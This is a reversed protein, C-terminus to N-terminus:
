KFDIQSAIDVIRNEGLDTALQELANTEKLAEAIHNTSKYNIGKVHAAVHTAKRNHASVQMTTGNIHRVFSNVSAEKRDTAKTTGSLTSGFHKTFSYKPSALILRDLFGDRYRATVNSKEMAGSRSQFVQKIKSRFSGRLSSAAKNGAIREKQFFDQDPM